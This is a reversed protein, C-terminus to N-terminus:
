IQYQLKQSLNIFNSILKNYIWDNILDNKKYKRFKTIKKICRVNSVDRM